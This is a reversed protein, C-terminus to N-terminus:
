VNGESKVSKNNMMARKKNILNNLDELTDASKESEKDNMYNKLRNVVDLFVDSGNNELGTRQLTIRKIRGVEEPSFDRDIYKDDFVGEDTNDRIHVFVRKGFETFFDNEDLLGDGKFATVRHESYLYLLGLVAEEAKAIAPDKAFDPNVKDMFGAAQQHMKQMEKKGFERRQKAIAREVDHKISKEDIELKKSLEKIYIEREASSYVQSIIKSLEACAIIKEQPVSIDHKSLVKEMNFDFKTRSETLISKFADVGYTKIYEDPDKAGTMKLVKVELGASELLAMAKTAAKQGPEDSDYSIIVKKTYRSMLRAQEPTIATGLTAVANCIGVSHLAIVDMYGECLIMSEACHQRAFNLAFLNKSKKFVPTDSSNKYKPMSDDMVRGGFAIVNGAPDIIPFMVRNRFSSFVNNNKDSRTGLFGIVLDDDTYGKSKMYNIFDFGNNPAFGLGFHKIAANSLRRKESLYQFALQASENKEFLASHFFRAADKNMMLIKSRDYKKENDKYDHSVTIGVRKALFEVADEFDLNEARKIFTIANGGAGCGFCYFSNDSPYVMFSPSRESHFPCLGKMLSGARQLSVYSSILQDIDTRNLIDDIVSKDIM